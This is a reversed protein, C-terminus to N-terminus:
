PLLRSGFVVAASLAAALSAILVAFAAIDKAKGLRERRELSVEDALFELATNLAEAMWVMAISWAIVLWEWGRLQVLLGAATVLVAALLHLRANPQSAFLWRAGRLAHRFSRARKQIWPNM